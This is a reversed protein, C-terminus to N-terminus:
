LYRSRLLGCLQISRRIHSINDCRHGGEYRRTLDGCIGLVALCDCDRATSESISLLLPYEDSVEHQLHKASCKAFLGKGTGDIIGHGPFQGLDDTVFDMM